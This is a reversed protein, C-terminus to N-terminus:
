LGMMKTEKGTLTKKKFTPKNHAQRGIFSQLIVFFLRFSHLLNFYFVSLFYTHETKFV